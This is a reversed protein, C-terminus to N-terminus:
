LPDLSATQGGDFRPWLNRPQREFAPRHVRWADFAALGFFVAVFWPMLGELLGGAIGDPAITLHEILSLLVFSGALVLGSLLRGFVLARRRLKELKPSAPLTWLERLRELVSWAFPLAVWLGERLAALVLQPVEPYLALLAGCGLVGAWWPPPRRLRSAVDVLTCMFMLTAAETMVVLPLVGRAVEALSAPVAHLAILVAAALAVLEPLMRMACRWRDSAPMSLALAEPAADNTAM